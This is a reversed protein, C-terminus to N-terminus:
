KKHSAMMVAAMNDMGWHETAKGDAIRVVDAVQWTLTKNTPPQGMFKGKNTGEWTGWILVMDGDAMVITPTGHLDPFAEHAMKFFAKVGERGKPVGPPLPEHEVFDESVLKDIADINGGNIVEAYFQMFRMKNATEQDFRALFRVVKGGSFVAMTNTKIPNVGFKAFADSRVRSMWKVTDGSQEWGWSDVHFGTLLQSMWARVSDRGTHTIGDPGTSAINDALAAAFGDLDHANVMEDLHKATPVLDSGSGSCGWFAACAAISCLLARKM